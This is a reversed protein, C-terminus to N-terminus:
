SAVTTTTGEVDIQFPTTENVSSSNKIAVYTTVLNNVKPNAPSFRVGTIVIPGSIATTPTTTTSCPQGTVYSFLDGPACETPTTPTTSCLQGTTTSYPGSGNCGSDYASVPKIVSFFGLLFLSLIVFSSFLTYKKM